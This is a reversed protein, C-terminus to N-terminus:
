GKAAKTPTRTRKPMSAKANGKAKSSTELGLMENPTMDLAEALGLLTSVHIDEAVECEIRSITGQPIGSAAELDEQTLKLAKRRQRVLAGIHKGLLKKDM